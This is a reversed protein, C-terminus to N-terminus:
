PGGLASAQEGPSRGIVTARSPMAAVHGALAETLGVLTDAVVRHERWSRGVPDPVDEAEEAPVVLPRAAHARAAVERWTRAPTHTGGTLLRVLEPLTFTWPVARHDLRAAAARQEETMTVVLAAQGLLQASAAVPQRAALDVGLDLGVQVAEEGPHAGPVLHLGASTVALDSRGLVRLHRRLLAAALPSRVLNARCLFVLAEPRVSQQEVM